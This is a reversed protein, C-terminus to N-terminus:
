PATQRAEVMEAAPAPEPAVPWPARIVHAHRGNSREYPCERSAIRDHRLRCSSMAQLRM